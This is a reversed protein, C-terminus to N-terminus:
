TTRDSWTMSPPISQLNNDDAMYFDEPLNEKHSIRASLMCVSVVMIMTILSAIACLLVIITLTGM